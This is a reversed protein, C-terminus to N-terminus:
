KKKKAPTTKLAEINKKALEAEKSEPYKDVLYELLTKGTKKDGIEIFAKGQKLLASPVKKSNPYKKIFTEYAIIASEYDKENFYCEAIWFHANECLEHKPFEKIFAEFYERAQKYKKEKFTNYALDYKAQLDKIQSQQPPSPSKTEAEKKETDPKKEADEIAKSQSQLQTELNNLKNNIDKIQRELATIQLKIFDLEQSSTKLSKETFYKNEEFRGILNQIEKSLNSLSLQTEVQSEKIAKFSEEKVVGSINNKINNIENKLLTNEKQLRNIDYNVKELDGSTACSYITFALIILILYNYLMKTM